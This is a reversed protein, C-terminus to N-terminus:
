LLVYKWGTFMWYVSLYSKGTIQLLLSQLDFIMLTSNLNHKKHSPEFIAVQLLPM